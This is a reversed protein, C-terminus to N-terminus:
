SSGVSLLRQPKPHMVLLLLNSLHMMLRFPVSCWGSYDNGVIAFNMMRVESKERRCVMEPNPEDCGGVGGLILGFRWRRARRWDVAARMRVGLGDRASAVVNNSSSTGSLDMVSLRKEM